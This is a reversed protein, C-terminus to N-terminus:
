FVRRKFEEFRLKGERKDKCPLLGKEYMDRIMLFPDTGALSLYRIYQRVSDKMAKSCHLDTCFSQFLAEDEQRLPKEGCWDKRAMHTIAFIQEMFDLIQEQYKEMQSEIQERSVEKGAGRDSVVKLFLMQHPGFFSSGAQYIAAAEMDYLKGASVAPLAAPSEKSCSRGPSVAASLGKDNGEGNWPLMGTVVAKERFNHRYLMDPFFTRGTAQETIKNCLFIGDSDATYACTGMNLLMDGREPRYVSCVSGVATAAAIEGVGTITLRIGATENCFEQFWINE